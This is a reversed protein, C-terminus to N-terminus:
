KKSAKERLAASDTTIWDIYQGIWNTFPQDITENWGVAHGRRLLEVGVCIKSM